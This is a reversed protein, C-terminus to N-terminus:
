YISQNIENILNRADHENVYVESVYDYGVEIKAKYLLSDPITAFSSMVHPRVNTTLISQEQCTILSHTASEVTPNLLYNTVNLDICSNGSPFVGHSYNNTGYVMTANGLLNYTSLAGKLPTAPDYQNQLMLINNIQKANEVNPKIVTAGGWKTTCNLEYRDHFYAPAQSKVSLFLADWYEPNTESNEDNCTVSKNVGENFGSAYPLSVEKVGNKVEFYKQALDIAIKASSENLASNSTYSYSELSAFLGSETIYPDIALINNIANMGSIYMVANSIRSQKFLNIYLKDSFATQLYINATFFIQKISNISTGLGFEPHETAYPIIFNDYVYQLPVSQDNNSLPISFDVTSDLVMHNVHSPFLSAYWVGLWTGYSYGYYNINSENMAVRISDIDKATANTNIYPTLANSQCAVADLQQNFYISNFNAQTSDMTPLLEQQYFANLQCVLNTSSGVGRPDFGIFDYREVLKHLERGVETSESASNFLMANRAGIGLGSGGPGGPNFVLIGIRNIPDTAKIRSVAVNLYGKSLDNYDIPVQMMSCQLRSGFYEKQPESISPYKQTSCEEWTLQSPTFSNSSNNNGSNCALLISTGILLVTKQIISKKNYM